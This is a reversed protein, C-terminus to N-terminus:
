GSGPLLTATSQAVQEALGSGTDGDTLADLHDTHDGRQEGVHDV